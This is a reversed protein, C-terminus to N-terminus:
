ADNLEEEDGGVQKEQPPHPKPMGRPLHLVLPQGLMGSNTNDREASRNTYELGNDAGGAGGM